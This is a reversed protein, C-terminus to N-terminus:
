EQPRNANKWIQVYKHWTSKVRNHSFNEMKDKNIKNTIETLPMEGHEDLIQFVYDKYDSPGCEYPLENNEIVEDGYSLKKRLYKNESRLFMIEKREEPFCKVSVGSNIEISSLEWVTLPFEEGLDNVWCIVLDCNRPDHRHIIFNSAMFEFEVRYQNGNEDEIIADPFAAQIKVINYGLQNMQMFRVIVGMENEPKLM